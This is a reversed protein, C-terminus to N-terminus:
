ASKRSTMAFVIRFLTDSKTFIQRYKSISYNLADRLMEDHNLARGIHISFPTKGYQCAMDFVARASVRARRAPTCLDYTYSCNLLLDSSLYNVYYRFYSSACAERYNIVKLTLKSFDSFRKPIMIRPSASHCTVRSYFGHLTYIERITRIVWTGRLQIFQVGARNRLVGKAPDGKVPIKLIYLPSLSSLARTLRM